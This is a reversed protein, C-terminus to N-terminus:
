GCLPNYYIKMRNCAREIAWWKLAIDPISDKNPRSFEYKAVDGFENGIRKLM